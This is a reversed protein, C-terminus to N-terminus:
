AFFPRLEREPDFWHAFLARTVPTAEPYGALRWERVRDRIRNVQELRVIEAAFDLQAGKPPPPICGAVRRGARIEPAGDGFHWYRTPEEFPDNIIPNEHVGRGVRSASPTTDAM